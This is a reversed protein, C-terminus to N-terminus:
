LTIVTSFDNKYLNKFKAFEQSTRFDVFLSNELIENKSIKNPYNKILLDLVKDNENLLLPKAIKHVFEYKSDDINLLTDIYSTDGLHKKCNLINYTYNLQKAKDNNSFKFLLEQTIQANQWESISLLFSSYSELPLYYEQKIKSKNEILQGLVAYILCAFNNTIDKADKLNDLTIQIKAGEKLTCSKIKNLYQENVTSDNHIILNRKYYLEIFQEYLQKFKTTVFSYQKTKKLLKDITNMVDYTLKEVQKDIVIQKFNKNPNKIIEIYSIGGMTEGQNTKFFFDLNRPILYKLLINFFTEFNIIYSVILKKGINEEFDFYEYNNINKLVNNSFCDSSNFQISVQREKGLNITIVEKVLMGNSLQTNMFEDIAKRTLKMSTSEKIKVIFKLLLIDNAHKNVDLKKENLYYKLCELYFKLEDNNSKIISKLILNVSKKM